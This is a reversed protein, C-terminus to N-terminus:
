SRMSRVSLVHKMNHEVPLTVLYEATSLHGNLVALLLPTWGDQAVLL